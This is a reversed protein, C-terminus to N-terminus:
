YGSGRRAVDRLHQDMEEPHDKYWQGMEAGHQVHKPPRAHGEQVASGPRTRQRAQRRAQEMEDGTVERNLEAMVIRHMRSVSLKGNTEDKLAKIATMVSPDDFDAQHQEIYAITDTKLQEFQHAAEIERIQEQNGENAARMAEVLQEAMKGFRLELGRESFPDVAGEGEKAGFKAFFEKFAANESINLLQAREAVLARREAELEQRGKITDDAVRNWKDSGRKAMAVANHVMRKAVEPLEAIEKDSIPWAKLGQADLENDLARYWELGGVQDLYEVRAAQDQAAVAAPSLDAGEAGADDGAGADGAGAEAGADDAGAGVASGEATGSGGDGADGAGGDGGGEAEGTNWGVTSLIPHAWGSMFRM